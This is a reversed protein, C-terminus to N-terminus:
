NESLSKRRAHHKTSGKGGKASSAAWGGGSEERFWGKQLEEEERSDIGAQSPHRSVGRSKADTKLRFGKKPGGLVARWM